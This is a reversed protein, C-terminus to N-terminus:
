LAECTGYAKDYEQVHTKYRSSTAWGLGVLASDDIRQFSLHV